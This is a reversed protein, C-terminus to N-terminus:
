WALSRTGFDRINLAANYDRDNEYGCECVFWRDSLQLDDKIAGCWHCTKSSPFWKDIKIFQKGQEELKYKLFLRFMGFGNDHINRGLNLCQAMNRLDIDEVIVADYENVIKRSEKHLWDLRQNAIHKQVTTIKQKQKCWNNSKLQKRSLKRQLKKLKEESKRYYHQYNSKKGESDVYFDHQSYDLGLIKESKKPQIDIVYEVCLSAYFIGKNDMSITCNKIISNDPLLRHQKVKILTKLKPIKLMSDKLTILNWKERLSQNYTRYTFDNKKISRFKPMGKLDKFTPKVGLTKERKRSRKTYTKKDYEDNFKKLAANFDMKASSLCQADVNKMYTFRRSFDTYKSLHLESRKIFGNQYGSRELQKYLEDVYMNYIKRACGFSQMFFEKQEKTPVIKFKYGRNILTEMKIGGKWLNNLM